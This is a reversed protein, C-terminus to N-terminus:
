SLRSVTAHVWSLQAVADAVEERLQADVELAQDAQRRHGELAVRLSGQLLGCVGDGSKDGEGAHRLHFQEVEGACWRDDVRRARRRGARRGDQQVGM